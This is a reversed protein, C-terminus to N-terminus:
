SIMFRADNPYQSLLFADASIPDSNSVSWFREGFLIFKGSENPEQTHIVGQQLGSDWKNPSGSTESPFIICLQLVQCWSWAKNVRLDCVNGRERIPQDEKSRLPYVIQITNRSQNCM